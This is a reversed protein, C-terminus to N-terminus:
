GGAANWDNPAGGWDKVVEFVVGEKYVLAVDNSGWARGCGGGGRRCVIGDLARRGRQALAREGHEVRILALAPYEDKRRCVGRASVGGIWAAV